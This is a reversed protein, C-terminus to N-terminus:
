YSPLVTDLAAQNIQAAAPTYNAPLAAMHAILRKQAQMIAPLKPQIDEFKQFRPLHQKARLIWFQGKHLYPGQIGTWDNTVRLTLVPWTPIEQDQVWFDQSSISDLPHLSKEALIRRLTQWVSASDPFAWAEVQTILGDRFLTTKFQEYFAREYRSLHLTDSVASLTAYYRATYQAMETQLSVYADQKPIKSKAIETLIADRITIELAQRLDRRWYPAPVDPLFALFDSVRFPKGSVTALITQPNLRPAKLIPIEQQAAVLGEPTNLRESYPAILPWLAELKHSYIQLRHATLISKIHRSAAETFRRNRWEFALKEQEKLFSADDLAIDEKREILRFIHWGNLSAVPTSTELPKLRYVVHEPALDLDNWHIWGMDGAKEPEPIGYKQMSTRALVNFDAGAQLQAYLSDIERRTNGYIQQLRLHTKHKIFADHLQPMNPQPITDLLTQELYRQRRVFNVQRNVYLQVRQSLDLQNRKGWEGIVSRELMKYAYARRSAPTDRGPSQTMFLSYEEKFHQTNISINQWHIVINDKQAHIIHTSNFLLFFTLWTLRKFSYIFILHHHNNKSNLNPFMAM